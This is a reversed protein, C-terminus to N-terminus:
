TFIDYGEKLPRYFFSEANDLEILKTLGIYHNRKNPWQTIERKYEPFLSLVREQQEWNGLRTKDVYSLGLGLGIFKKM